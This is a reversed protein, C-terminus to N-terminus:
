GTRGDHAQRRDALGLYLVLVGIGVVVSSDAVNFTPFRTEGLGVSVFDVVYGLRLRDTLNGLTGALITGLVVHIWPGRDRFARFFYGIMVLALATIPLFLWIAGPFLSFAAGTNQVYWIRVLDGIVDHSEGVRLNAVVLLKTVQDAVYLAIATGALVLAPRLSADRENSAEM